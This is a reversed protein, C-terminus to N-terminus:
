PRARGHGGCRVVCRRRCCRRNPIFCCFCGSGYYNGSSDSSRSGSNSATASTISATTSTRRLTVVMLVVLQLVVLVSCQLQLLVVLPLNPNGVKRLAPCVPPYSPMNQHTTTNEAHRLIARAKPMVKNKAIPRYVRPTDNSTQKFTLGWWIGRVQYLRGTAM